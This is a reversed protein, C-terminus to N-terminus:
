RLGHLSRLPAPSRLGYNLKGIQEHGNNGLDSRLKLPNKAETHWPPLQRGALLLAYQTKKLGRGVVWDRSAM